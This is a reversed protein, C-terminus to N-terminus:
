VDRGFVRTTPVHLVWQGDRNVTPLDRGVQPMAKGIEGTYPM